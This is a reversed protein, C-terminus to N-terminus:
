QVPGLPRVLGLRILLVGRKAGGKTATWLKDVEASATADRGPPIWAPPVPAEFHYAGPKDYRVQQLAHDNVLFTVSVPGTAKWAQRSIVFDMSYTRSGSDPLFIRVAPHQGTWRGDGELNESVDRLFHRSALPDSMNVLSAAQYPRHSAFPQRQVPPAYAEPQSQCASVAAAACTLIIRRRV